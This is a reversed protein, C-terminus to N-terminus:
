DPARGPGAGDGPVPVPQADDRVRLEGAAPDGVAGVKWELATKADRLGKEVAQLRGVEHADNAQYHQILKKVLTAALTVLISLLAATM